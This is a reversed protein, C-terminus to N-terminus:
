LCNNQWQEALDAPEIRYAATLVVYGLGNMNVNHWDYLYELHSKKLTSMNKILVFLATDM